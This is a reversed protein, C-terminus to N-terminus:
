LLVKQVVVGDASGHALGAGQHAARRLRQGETLKDDLFELCAGGHDHEAVEVVCIVGDGGGNDRALPGELVIGPDAAVVRCLRVLAIRAVFVVLDLGRDGFDPQQRGFLHEDAFGQAVHDIGRGEAADVLADVLDQEGGGELRAHRLPILEIVELAKVIM